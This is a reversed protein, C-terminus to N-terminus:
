LTNVYQWTVHGMNVHQHCQCMHGGQARRGPVSGSCMICAPSRVGSMGAAWPWKGRGWGARPQTVLAPDVSHLVSLVPGSCHIYYETSLDYWPDAPSSGCTVLGGRIIDPLSAGDYVRMGSPPVLIPPSIQTKDYCYHHKIHNQTTRKNGHLNLKFNLTLFYNNLILKLSKQIKDGKNNTKLSYLMWLMKFINLACCMWM